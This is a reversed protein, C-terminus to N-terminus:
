ILGTILLQYMSLIGCGRKHGELASLRLMFGLLYCELPRAVRLLGLIFGWGKGVDAAHPLSPLCFPFLSPM